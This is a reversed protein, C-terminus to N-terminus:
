KMGKTFCISFPWFWINWMGFGLKEAIDKLKYFEPILIIYPEVGDVLCKSILDYDDYLGSGHWLIQWQKVLEMSM